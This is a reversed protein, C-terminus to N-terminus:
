ERDSKNNQELPVYKTDFYDEVFFVPLKNHYKKYLEEGAMVKYCIGFGNRYMIQTYDSVISKDQDFQGGLKGCIICYSDLSTHIKDENRNFKYQILCEEYKHKHKSKKKSKSINSKTPKRYKEIENSQDYNIEKM